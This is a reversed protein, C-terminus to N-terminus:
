SLDRGPQKLQIHILSGEGYLSKIDIEGQYLNIRNRISSLGTGMIPASEYGTKFGSGDDKVQINILGENGSLEITINSAKGHKISNGVLEQIIRYINLMFDESLNTGMGTVRTRVQLSKGSLRKSMEDLTAALGFDKLISPALEFSINRIDRITQDLLQSAQEYSPNTQVSKLQSFNLKIAYLMQGVSDHLTESIRKRENEEAQLSAATIVLQHNEKLRTSEQELLKKYTIDTITGLFRRSVEDYIIQGRALVYRNPGKNMNVCFETIFEKERVIARRLEADLRERDDPIVLNLLSNYRGDFKSPQVGFISCSYADLTVNGNLVNIEWIGTSSADLAIQLHKKADQLEIEYNKKETVDIITIYYLPEVKNLEVGSGNLQIYIVDQKNKYLRLQCSQGTNGKLINKFFTYYLNIDDPHIFGPLPKNVILGKRLELLNCGTVNIDTIAGRSNLVLYGVPAMEFLSSFKIKQKELEEAIISLEDNQMEIELQYVQLEQFLRQVEISQLTEMGLKKEGLLEEAKLRLQKLADYNNEASIYKKSAM